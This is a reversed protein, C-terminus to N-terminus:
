WWWYGCGGCWGGGGGYNLFWEGCGVGFGCSVFWGGGGAVGGVPWWWLIHFCGEHDNHYKQQQWVQCLTLFLFM